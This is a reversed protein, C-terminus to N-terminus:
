IMFLTAFMKIFLLEIYEDSKSEFLLVVFLSPDLLYFISIQSRNKWKLSVQFYYQSLKSVQMLRSIVYDLYVLYAMLFLCHNDMLDM